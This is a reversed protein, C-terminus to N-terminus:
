GSAYIIPALLCGDVIRPSAWRYITVHDVDICREAVLEEVDRYSLGCRLYWRVALLIVEPPFRYGAFSDSEVASSYNVRVRQSCRVRDTLAVTGSM